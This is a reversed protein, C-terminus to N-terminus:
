KKNRRIVKNHASFPLSPGSPHQPRSYLLVGFPPERHDQPRSIAPGSSPSETRTSINQWLCRGKHSLVDSWVQGVLILHCPDAVKLQMRLRFRIKPPPANIFVAGRFYLTCSRRVAIASCVGPLRVDNSILERQITSGHIYVHM